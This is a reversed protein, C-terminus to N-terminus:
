RDLEGLIERLGYHRQDRLRNDWHEELEVGLGDAVRNLYNFYAVVQNADVIDRDSLGLRRVAEIDVEAVAWPSVTLRYAYRCVGAMRPPLEEFRGSVVAERFAESGSEASLAAGHHVM